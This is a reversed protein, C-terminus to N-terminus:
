AVRVNCYEAIEAPRSDAGAAELWELIPHSDVDTAAAKILPVNLNSWKQELIPRPIDISPTAASQEALALVVQAAKRAAHAPQLITTRAAEPLVPLLAEQAAEDTM